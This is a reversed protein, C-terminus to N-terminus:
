SEIVKMKILDKRIEEELAIHKNLAQKAEEHMGKRGFEFFQEWYKDRVDRKKQLEKWEDTERRNIAQLVTWLYMGCMNIKNDSSRAMLLSIEGLRQLRRDGLMRKSIAPWFRGPEFLMLYTFQVEKEEASISADILTRIEKSTVNM